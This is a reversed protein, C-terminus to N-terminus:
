QKDIFKIRFKNKGVVAQVCGFVEERMHRRRVGKKKEGMYGGKATVVTGVAIEM